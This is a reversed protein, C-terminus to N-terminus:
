GSKGSPKNFCQVAATERVDCNHLGWGQHGCEQLNVECGTCMVRDMWFKKNHNLVKKDAMIAKGTHYGLQKCVVIADTHGWHNDCVAGWVGDHYVEVFGTEESIGDM